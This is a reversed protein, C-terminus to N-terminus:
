HSADMLIRFMKEPVECLTKEATESCLNWGFHEVTLFPRFIRDLCPGLPGDWTKDIRLHNIKIPDHAGWIRAFFSIKLLRAGGLNMSFRENAGPHM